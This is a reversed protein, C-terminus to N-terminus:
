LGAANKGAPRPRTRTPPLPLPPAHSAAWENYPGLYHEMLRQRAQEALYAAIEADRRTMFADAKRKRNFMARERVDAEFNEIRDSERAIAESALGAALMAVDIKRGSADAGKQTIEVTPPPGSWFRSVKASTEMADLSLGLNPLNFAGSLRVTGGPPPDLPGFSLAGSALALAGSAGALPLAGKDLEGGLLAGLKKPEPPPGQAQELRPLLRALAQPDLRPIKAEGVKLKGAGALSGVLAAASDGAGVFALSSDIRGALGAREVLVGQLALAGTATAQGKDRRLDLRGKVEGGNVLLSADDLRLRDGDLRLRGAMAHGAGAVGLDLAGVKLAIDASPPTLLAPGFKAEPWIADPRTPAPRGLVLSLLAGLSARDFELAGTIGPAADAGARTWVLGGAIHSGALGGKLAALRAGDAGAELDAALDAPATAGLGARALGLAALAPLLDASKLTLPGSIWADASAPRFAGSWALNAGALALRAKGDFGRRWQGTGSASFQARGAPGPAVKLGLKRLLAGADAADLTAEAAIADVPAPARSLTLAFRAGAATGDAKLFDLPFPGDLPPGDRRAEFNVKAAGLDDARQLLWATLPGPAARALLAAFDNLRAADLQVRTWRGSPSTQGEAEISAGGLNALSLKQLTFKSGQKTARLELSGGSVSALGVRAVRLTDAKLRFDLDAGGLWALGAEVNPATEIDLADSALDLYLRGSQKPRPLRYVISGDFRSAAVKLALGRVAYGEPSLEVDGSASIDGQPLAAGLAALRGALGPEGEGIWAALSAFDGVAGQGRGRFIPAPAIELAGDLAVRGNGPLGSAMKIRVSGGAVGSLTLQPAALQRAGLYATEGSLKLSFKGLSADRGLARGLLAAFAQAARAPPVFTEKDKRLLADLNLTKAKLEAAIEPKQGLTVSLRGRAQLARAEEGLSADAGALNARDGSAALQGSLSWPWVGGGPAPAQGAFTAAGELRPADAFVLRGDLTARSPGADIEAKLPLADAVFGESAFQFDARRDALAFDGAGRWPGRGSRASGDFNVDHLVLPAAGTRAIRIEAHAARIHEFELRGEAPPAFHPGLRLQPHDFTVDDLKITGGFLSAFGIEIRMQPAKLWPAAPPGIAIGAIKLYPTPLARLTIPGSIEVPAGIRVSIARAVMDRRATWDILPPAVLAVMLATVLAVAIFTLINRM